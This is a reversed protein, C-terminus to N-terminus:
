AEAGGEDMYDDDALEDVEDEDSAAGARPGKAPRGDAMEVDGDKAQGGGAEGDGEGAVSAGEAAVDGAGGAGDATDDSDQKVHGAQIRMCEVDMRQHRLVADARSMRKGCFWCERGDGGHAQSRLHRTLDWPRNFRKKCQDCWTPDEASEDKKKARLKRRKAPPPAPVTEQPPPDPPAPKDPVHSPGARPPHPTRTAAPQDATKDRPPDRTRAM